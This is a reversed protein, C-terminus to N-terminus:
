REKKYVGQETFISALLLAAFEEPSPSLIIMEHHDGAESRREQIDNFVTTEFDYNFNSVTLKGRNFSFQEPLYRGNEAYNLLYMSANIKTLVNPLGKGFVQDKNQIGFFYRDDKLVCPLSDNEVVGYIFNNKVRYQSSERIVERSIASITTSLIFIGDENFEISRGNATYVGYLSPDVNIVKEELSPVPDSFYYSKQGISFLTLFLSAVIGVIKM